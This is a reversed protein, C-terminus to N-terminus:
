RMMAGPCHEELACSDRERSTSRGSDEGVAREGGGDAATLPKQRRVNM